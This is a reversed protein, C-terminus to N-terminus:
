KSTGKRLIVDVVQSKNAWNMTRQFDEAVQWARPRDEARVSLLGKIAKVVARIGPDHSDEYNADITPLIGQLKRKMGIEVSVQEYAEHGNHLVAYLINGLFYLDRGEDNIQTSTEVEPARLFVEGKKDGTVVINCRKTSTTNRMLLDANGFDAIKPVGSVFWINNLHLDSHIISADNEGNGDVGHIGAFCSTLYQHYALKEKINLKRITRQFDTGDALENM